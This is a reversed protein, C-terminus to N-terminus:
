VVADGTPTQKWASSAVSVCQYAGRSGLRKGALRRLHTMGARTPTERSAAGASARSFPLSTIVRPSMVPNVRERHVYPSIGMVFVDMEATSIGRWGSVKRGVPPHVRPDNERGRRPPLPLM